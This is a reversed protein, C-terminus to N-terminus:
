RHRRPESKPETKPESKLDNTLDTTLDPALDIQLNQAGVCALTDPRQSRPQWPGTTSEEDVSRANMITRPPNGIFKRIAIFAGDPMAGALRRPTVMSFPPAARVRYSM